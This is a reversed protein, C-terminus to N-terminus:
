RSLSSCFRSVSSDTQGDIKSILCSCWETWIADDPVSVIRLSYCISNQPSGQHCCPVQWYGKTLDITSVFRAKGLRDILEDIRPMSYNDNRSVSNLKCYDVCMRLSGDKKSVLVIPFSWESRSPEIIGNDLMEDLEDKVAKRYAQPLRYSLLRIPCSSGTEIHHETLTTKGPKGSFM